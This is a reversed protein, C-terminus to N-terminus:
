HLELSFANQDDRGNENNTGNENNRANENDAVSNEGHINEQFSAKIKTGNPVQLEISISLDKLLEGM